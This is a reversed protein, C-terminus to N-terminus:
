QSWPRKRLPATTVQQSLNDEKADWERAAEEGEHQGGQEVHAGRCAHPEDYRAGRLALKAAINAIASSVM